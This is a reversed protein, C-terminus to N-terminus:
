YMESGEEFRQSGSSSMREVQEELDCKESRLATVEDTLQDVASGLADQLGPQSSLLLLLSQMQGQVARLEQVSSFVFFLYLM